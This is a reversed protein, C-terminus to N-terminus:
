RHFRTPEDEYKDWLGLGKAIIKSDQPRASMNLSVSKGYCEVLVVGPQEKSVYINVFATSVIDADYKNQGSHHEYEGFLHFDGNDYIVYKTKSM